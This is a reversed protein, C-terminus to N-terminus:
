SSGGSGVGSGATTPISDSGLLEVTPLSSPSTSTGFALGSEGKVMHAAQSTMSSGTIKIFLSVFNNVQCTHQDLAVLM